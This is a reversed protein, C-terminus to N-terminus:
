ELLVRQAACIPLLSSEPSEQQTRQLVEQQLLPLAHARHFAAAPLLNTDNSSWSISASAAICAVSM